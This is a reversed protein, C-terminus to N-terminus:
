PQAEKRFALAIAASGDRTNPVAFWMWTGNPEVIGVPEAPLGDDGSRFLPRSQRETPEILRWPAGTSTWSNGDISQLTRFEGNQDQTALVARFGGAPDHTVWLRESSAGLSALDSSGAKRWDKGDDSVLHLLSGAAGADRDAYWLHIASGDFFTSPSLPATNSCNASLPVGRPQWALGDKSAALHLTACDNGNLRNQDLAYWLLYEEGARVLAISHLDESVAPDETTLVPGPSKEWVIGDRSQAHGIGCTYEREIFHCGVYWLRYRGDEKLVVPSTVKFNDWEHVEGRMLVSRVVPSSARQRARDATMVASMAAEVAEYAKRQAALDADAEAQEAAIIRDAERFAQQSAHQRFLNERQGRDRGVKARSEDAKTQATRAAAMAATRQAQAEALRARARDISEVGYVIWQGPPSQRVEDAFHEAELRASDAFAHTSPIDRPPLSSPALTPTPQHAASEGAGARDTWGLIATLVIALLEIRTPRRLLSFTRSVEIGHRARLVPPYYRQRLSDGTPDM